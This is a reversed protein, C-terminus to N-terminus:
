VERPGTYNVGPGPVPGHGLPQSVTKINVNKVLIITYLLATTPIHSAIVKYLIVFTIQKCMGVTNQILPVTIEQMEGSFKNGYNSLYFLSVSNVAYDMFVRQVNVLTRRFVSGEMLVNRLM